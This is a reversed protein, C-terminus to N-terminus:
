ARAPNWFDDPYPVRDNVALVFDRFLVIDDILEQQNGVDRDMFHHIANGRSQVRRLFQEHEADIRKVYFGILKDLPVKEPPVLTGARNRLADPDKQYYKLWVACFLKLAGECLSRLTAYGLIQKAEAEAASFPSLYWALTHTFSTQRDLRASALLSAAEDPAWGHARRWFEEMAGTIRIVRDIATAERSRPFQSLPDRMPTPFPKKSLLLREPQQNKLEGKGVDRSDDRKAQEYRMLESAGM